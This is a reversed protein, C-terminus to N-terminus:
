KSVTPIAAPATIPTPVVAAKLGLAKEDMISALEHVPNITMLTDSGWTSVVGVLNGRRFIIRHFTGDVSSGSVKGDIRKWSSSENGIMSDSIRDSKGAIRASFHEYASHAGDQTKFLHVEVAIYYAGNLVGSMRTEPEYSTEYGGDYGWKTLLDQGQSASDFTATKSYNDTNLVFTYDRETLFGPGLDEQSLAFRSAPADLKPSDSSPRPTGNGSAGVDDDDGGCAVAAAAFCLCLALVLSLRSLM